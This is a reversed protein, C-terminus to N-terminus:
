FFHSTTLVCVHTVSKVVPGSLPREQWLDSSPCCGSSQDLHPRAALSGRQHALQLMVSPEARQRTRPRWPGPYIGPPVPRQEWRRTIKKLSFTTIVPPFPSPPPLLPYLRSLHHHFSVQSPTHVCM